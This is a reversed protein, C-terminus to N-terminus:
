PYLFQGTWPTEDHTNDRTLVEREHLRFDGAQWFEVRRVKLRFGSWHSPRPVDLGHFKAEVEKVRAHLTARADLPQSQLSAHAGIQSGRSRSAFYADAEGQSVAEVSGELRVQRELSKWHFLIAARTEARLEQGKRSTVNTYFVPGRVDLGKLLLTRLSPQGQSDVTALYLANPDNLEGQEAEALWTALLDFPYSAPYSAM